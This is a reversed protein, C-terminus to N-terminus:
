TSFDPTRCKGSARTPVLAEVGLEPPRLGPGSAPSQSSHRVGSREVRSPSGGGEYKIKCTGKPVRSWAGFTFNIIFPSTRMHMCMVQPQPADKSVELDFFRTDPMQGLGAGPGSSRGGSRPVFGQDQRPRDLQLGSVRSKSGLHRVVGKLIFKLNTKGSRSRAGFRLNIKFPSPRMHSCM